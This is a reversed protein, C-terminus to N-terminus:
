HFHRPKKFSPPSIQPVTLCNDSDWERNRIMPYAKESDKAADFVGAAKPMGRNLNSTILPSQPPVQPVGYALNEASVSSTNWEDDDDDDKVFPLSPENTKCFGDSASSSPDLLDEVHWGPLTEMLYESISSTLYSGNDSASYKDDLLKNHGASQLLVAKEISPSRVVEHPVTKPRKTSSQPATRTKINNTNNIIQESATTTTSSSSAPYLSTASLKVGTLLFRNHKQTHENAKHIPFDCERCLIARDEQCFLFARREQCIDCLPFQKFTPNLLSFRSHNSALKNARHIRQDCGDCLAAEDACCFMSAEEKDCVDCRIKM